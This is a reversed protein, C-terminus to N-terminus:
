KIGKTLFNQNHSWNSTRTENFSLFKAQPKIWKKGTISKRKFFYPKAQLIETYAFVETFADKKELELVLVRNQYAM